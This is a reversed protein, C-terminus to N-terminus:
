RADEVLERIERAKKDVSDIVAKSSITAGTIAQVDKLEGIKKNRFREQFWPRKIEAPGKRKGRAVDWITTDEEIEIIKSGLGPTENQNLVKIAYLRGDSLMGIMTEIHSSYGKASAKFAVGIFGGDKGYAKYYLTQSGTKVPEFNVAEPLVEMLAAKEEAQQQATIRARTLSNVAALLGSAVVCIVALIIGYRMIDKM